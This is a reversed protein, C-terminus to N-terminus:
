FLISSLPMPLDFWAEGDNRLSVQPMLRWTPAMSQFNKYARNYLSPLLFTGQLRKPPLLPLRRFPYRKQLCDLLWVFDSYRRVVTSSRRVSKVEYNRHQFMFMGEKEPLMTITIVEGSAHPLIVGAGLSRRPDGRGPNGQSGGDGFGGGILNQQESFGENSSGNYSSWGAAGGSVGGTPQSHGGPPSETHTTFASTTRQPLSAATSKAVQEPFGNLPPGPMANSSPLSKQAVPSAWPDSELDGGLSDQRIRRPRSALDDKQPSRQAPASPM